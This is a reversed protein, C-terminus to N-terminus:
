RVTLVVRMWPHVCCQFMYTGPALGTTRFVDDKDAAVFVNVPSPAKPVLTGDPATTACESAPVPNGSLENLIPVFGGGFAKVLTFTHTEGGENQLLVPRGNQVRLMSPRFRWEAAAKTRTVEGIFAGFTTDGHGVCTGPGIAKNFSARDCDDQMRIHHGGSAAVPSAPALASVASVAVAILLVSANRRWM